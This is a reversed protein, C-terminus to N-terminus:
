GLGKHGPGEVVHMLPAKVALYSSQYFGLIKVAADLINTIVEKKEEYFRIKSIDV